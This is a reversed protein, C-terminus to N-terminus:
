PKVDDIVVEFSGDTDAVEVEVGAEVVLLAVPASGAAVVAEHVQEEAGGSQKCAQQLGRCLESAPSPTGRVSVEAEVEELKAM